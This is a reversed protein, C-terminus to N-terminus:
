VKFANTTCCATLCQWPSSNHGKQQGIGAAPMATKPADWQHASCGLHLPKALNLFRYHILCATSWWVTVMVNKPTFKAERTIWRTFFRGAICSVQTRNRPQSSGRSFPFAVWELIRAKLIGRVMYDITDCLRVPSLWVWKWKARPLAKSSRRPGVPNNTSPQPICDEKHCMGCDSQSIIWQQTFYSFVASWHNKKQRPWSMLCGNISSKWRQIQQLHWIVMSHKINLEDGVEWTATPPDAEIIARLHDNEVESLQGSHEKDELNKNGKCLKKFWQQVTRENATGPGFTDNINCITEVSKCGLKFEFLFIAQIQKKDLMMENTYFLYLIFLLYFTMLLFYYLSFHVDSHWM